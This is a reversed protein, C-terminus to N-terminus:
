GPKLPSPAAGWCRSWLALTAHVWVCVCACTYVCLCPGQWHPGAGSMMGPWLCGQAKGAYLPPAGKGKELGAQLFPVLDWCSGHTGSGVPEVAAGSSLQPAAHSLSTSHDGAGCLASGM